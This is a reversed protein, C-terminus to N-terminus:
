ATAPGKGKAPKRKPRAKPKEAAAEPEKARRKGKAKGLLKMIEEDSAGRKIEIKEETPSLHRVNARRRKVGTLEKPGTVLVFNKDLVDVVVCRKGSERGFAKVCLRGIEMATL